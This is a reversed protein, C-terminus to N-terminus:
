RTKDESIRGDTVRIIRDCQDAIRDDHTVILFTTKGEAHVERMLKFVADSNASDLNGTPEDALILPKHRALARAIAVRQQEGGSIANALKESHQGVGMRDLLTKAEKTDEEVSKSSLVAGPMLVNELVTFDPLLYHFQFVFGIMTGRLHTLSSDSQKAIDTGDLSYSGESTRDLIGILNLLTSKGSGSQGVIAAFEGREVELNVDSLARFPVAGGYIKAASKLDVLM